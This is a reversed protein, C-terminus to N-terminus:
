SLLDQIKSNHGEDAHGGFVVNVFGYYLPRKDVTYDARAAKLAEAVHMGDPIQTGMGKWYGGGIEAHEAVSVKGGKFEVGQFTKSNIVAKM